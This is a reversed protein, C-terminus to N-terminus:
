RCPALAPSRPPPELYTDPEPLEEDTFAAAAPLMDLSAGIEGTTEAEYQPTGALRSTTFADRVPVQNALVGALIDPGVQAAMWRGRAPEDDLLIALVATGDPLHALVHIPRDFFYLIRSVTASLPEPPRSASTTPATATTM